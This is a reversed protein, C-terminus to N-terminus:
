WYMDGRYVVLKDLGNHELQEVPGIVVRDDRPSSVGAGAAPIAVAAAPAVGEDIRCPPPDRVERDDPAVHLPIPSYGRGKGDGALLDCERGRLRRLHRAAFTRIGIDCM